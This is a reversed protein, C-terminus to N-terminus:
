TEKDGETMFLEYDLQSLSCILRWCEAEEKVDALSGESDSIKGVYYVIGAKFKKNARLAKHLKGRSQENYHEVTFFCEMADILLSASVAVTQAKSSEIQFIYVNTKDMEFFSNNMSRQMNTVSTNELSAM